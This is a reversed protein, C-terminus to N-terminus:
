SKPSPPLLIQSLFPLAKSDKGTFYSEACKPVWETDIFSVFLPLADLHYAFADVTSGDPFLHSYTTRQEVHKPHNSKLWKSFYIGVSVDPRLQKGHQGVDPIQYGAHELRGYLRVFLESIVSFHGSPVRSWNDNYRRVFNPVGQGTLSYSGTKRIQPIVESTIWKRFRKAEPKRSKFILEYLGSESVIATKQAGGLTDTTAIGKQDDDLSSVADSTNSIDLAACVDAAVFWVSGDINLTRIRKHREDEFIQLYQQM